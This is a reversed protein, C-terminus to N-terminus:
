KRAAKISVVKEGAGAALEDLYNAWSQMMKTRDELYDAHNYSARSRNREAHALQREIVDPRWGRENLLTSATARVGHPTFTGTYGLKTFAANLTEDNMHRKPDGYHPFLHKFQGSLGQLEKLLALAQRSLPVVHEQRMKMRAAPIRWLHNELDFEDWTAACLENKRVFTLMLLKLAIRTEPRGSRYGDIEELFTPLTKANLRKAHTIPPLAIAGRIERAPNQKTQLNRIAHSYVRSIIWRVHEATRPKGANAIKRILGLIDAADISDIPQAGLVPYIHNVFWGKTGACWSSSRHPKLEEFWEQAIAEFTNSAARRKSVKQARKLASPNKGDELQRRAEAHRERATKLSLEPYPGVSLTQRRGLHRYDYRWAKVGTPAVFLYLGGQDALKLPKHAARVQRAKTDTLM